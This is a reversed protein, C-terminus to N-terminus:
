SIQLESLLAHSPHQRQLTVHNFTVLIKSPVEKRQRGPLCYATHSFPLAAVPFDQFFVPSYAPLNSVRGRFPGRSVNSPFRELFFHLSSANTACPKPLLIFADLKTGLLDIWLTNCFQSWTSSLYVSPMMDWTIKIRLNALLSM